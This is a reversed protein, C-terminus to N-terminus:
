YAKEGYVYFCADENSYYKDPRMANGSHTPATNDLGVCPYNLSTGGIYTFMICYPVNSELKIGDSFNFTFLAFAPLAPLSAIAVSDSIALPDGTPMSSTGYVGTHAYLRAHCTGWNHNHDYILSSLYFKCSKLISGDGKFSQGYRGDGGYVARYTNQNTESYSDVLVTTPVPVVTILEPETGAVSMGQIRTACFKGKENMERVITPLINKVVVKTGDIGNFRFHLNNSLEEAAKILAFASDVNHDIDASRIGLECRKLESYKKGDALEITDTGPLVFTGKKLLHSIAKAASFDESSDVDVSTYGGSVIM